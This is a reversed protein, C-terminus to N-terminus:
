VQGLIVLPSMSFTDLLLPSFNRTGSTNLPSNNSSVTTQWQNAINLVFLSISRSRGRHNSSSRRGVWSYERERNSRFPCSTLTLRISRIVAIIEKMSVKYPEPPRWARIKAAFLGLAEKDVGKIVIRTTQPTTCTIGRPVPMVVPHSYGLRLVLRQAANNSSTESALMQNYAEEQEQSIFFTRNGSTLATQLKSVPPSPNAEVSARYGVGVLSLIISHGENVGELANQLLARTMGHFSRTKKDIANPPATIAVEYSVPEEAADQNPSSPAVVQRLDIGNHLPVLVEGLPGKVLVSRATRLAPSLSRAPNPHPPFSQITLTTSSAPYLPATGIHSHRLQQQQLSQITQRSSSALASRQLGKALM